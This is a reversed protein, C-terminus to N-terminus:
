KGSFANKVLADCMKESYQRIMMLKSGLARLTEMKPMPLNGYESASIQPTASTLKCYKDYLSSNLVAYLGHLTQADLERDDCYDVYNLKNHSSIYRYLPLQAAMYIGCVLRHHESKAPVRKILLMNKNKQMLSPITPTIYQNKSDVPFRVRGLGIGQPKLIPIAKGGATDSLMDKCRSEIVLGTKMRLGLSTLTEPLANITNYIEWEEDSKVLLMPADGRVVTTYPLPSLTRADKMVGEGYSTTITVTAPATAGKKLTVILTRALSDLEGEAKAKKLFLHISSVACLSFLKARFKSLYSSTAFTVPLTCVMVGGERVLETAMAAFLISLDTAGYCVDATALGEPSDKECLESPPNMIVVDYKTEEGTFLSPTYADRNALIFNDEVINNVLKIGHFRRAKKRIRELNNKLMPIYDPNNEYSTLQIERVGANANAIAEVAAAGLIGTGAGPDLVRVVDGLASADIQSAMYAAADQKTFNRGIRINEESSKQRILKRTNRM